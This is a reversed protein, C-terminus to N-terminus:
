WLQWGFKVHVNHHLEKQPLVYSATYGPSLSLRGLYIDLDQKMTFWHVNKAESAPQDGYGVWGNYALLGKILPEYVSLGVTPTVVEKDIWYNPQITLKGGAFASLSFATLIAFLFNKM